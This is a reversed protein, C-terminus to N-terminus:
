KDTGLSPLKSANFPIPGISTSAYSSKPLLVPLFLVMGIVMCKVPKGCLVNSSLCNTSKHKNRLSSNFSASM